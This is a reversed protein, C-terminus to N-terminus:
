WDGAPWKWLQGGAIVQPEHLKVVWDKGVIILKSGATQPRFHFVPDGELLGTFSHLNKWAARGDMIM